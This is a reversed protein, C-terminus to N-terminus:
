RGDFWDQEPPEAGAQAEEEPEPEPPPAAPKAPAAAPPPAAAREASPPRGRGRRPAEPEAAVPEAVPAPQNAPPRLDVPRETPAAIQPRNTIDESEAEIPPAAKGDAVAKALDPEAMQTLDLKGDDATAAMEVDAGLDIGKAHRKVASKMAMQDEWLVWPTDEFKKVQWQEGGASKQELSTYTDSRGRIKDLDNRDLVTFPKGVVGPGRQITTMCFSGIVSGRGAIMNPRVSIRSDTGRVIDIEDNEGIWDSQVDLVIPNRYMLAIFGRYGIQLNCEMIKVWQGNSKVSRERPILWAHGKPTNVELGLATATQLAGFFTGPSCQKLNPVLRLASHALRFAIEPTLYRTAVQKLRGVAAFENNFIDGVSQPAWGRQVAASQGPKVLAPRASAESM